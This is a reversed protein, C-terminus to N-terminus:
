LSEMEKRVEELLVEGDIDDFYREDEYKESIRDLVIWAERGGNKWEDYTEVLARKIVQELQHKEM